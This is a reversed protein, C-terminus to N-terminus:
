FASSIGSCPSVSDAPAMIGLNGDVASCRETLGFFLCVGLFFTVMALSNLVEKSM